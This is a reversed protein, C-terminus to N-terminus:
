VCREAKVRIRAAQPTYSKRFKSSTYSQLPKLLSSLFEHIGEAAIV